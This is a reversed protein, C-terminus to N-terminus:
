FHRRTGDSCSLIPQVPIAATPDPSFRAHLAELCPDLDDVTLDLDWFSGTTASLSVVCPCLPNDVEDIFGNLVLLDVKHATDHFFITHAASFMLETLLRNYRRAVDNVDRGQRAELITGWAPLALDVILTRSELVYAVEHEIPCPLPAGADDLQGDFYDIIAAVEGAEYDEQYVSPQGGTEKLHEAYWRTTRISDALVTDLESM